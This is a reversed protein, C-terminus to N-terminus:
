AAAPRPPRRDRLHRPQRELRRIMLGIMAWKAMAEAHTPLREYDRSLRRWKMMWALTREVVWRRPLVQFGRQGKHKRVIQVALAIATKAWEVMRGQYGADAWVLKVRRHADRLRGLITQGGDRDQVSAATVAVVLLLGITDTVLHRKRGNTRKGADYGRSGTPVTDAGRVTQSDIVGASPEVERGERRRVEDRLADHIEDLTGDAEWRAFYEYVTRWPPFDAPLQRWACGTRVLYLIADVISRMPWKRPRGGTEPNSRPPPILPEVLGWQADTLDSPYTRERESSETSM